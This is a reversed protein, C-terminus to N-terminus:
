IAAEKVPQLEGSYTINGTRGDLRITMNGAEDRMEIVRNVADIDCITRDQADNVRLRGNATQGGLDFIGSKPDLKITPQGNERDFWWYIGVRAQDYPKTM